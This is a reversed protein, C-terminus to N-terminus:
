EENGLKYKDMWNNLTQYNNLGLLKAAKTRNGGTKELARQIYHGAVMGIIEPLDIESDLSMNLIDQHQGGEVAPLLAEKIDEADLVQGDSWIVARHLTNMFERVNGPWNHQLLINRASPSLRKPELGPEDQNERNIDDLLRDMLLGLDGPRNRLAPLKLVAVALRYFLDARFRGLSVEQLLDRNTAAMVRIDLKVPRSEGVRQIESEQLARLVKVQAALPLEGIEDLFLTGKHAAEFYGTRAQHAGTFAGKIHGFLESELLELPIAGCNVAIFPEDGRPGSKHIARALLEKGTGSEGEILVPVTRMSVKRAKHLIRHMANCRYIIDDFAPELPPLAASLRELRADKQRAAGPLYEASLDFPFKVVRVGHEKSSEILEARFRTKALIIWVAAMAPTGPSLHFTLRAKSYKESLDQLVSLAGQFIEEYSTPGSLSAQRIDIFKDPNRKAIWKHYCSAEEPPYNNLLVLRYFKNQEMAQAVPGIGAEPHGHCANIDTRGLWSILFFSTSSVSHSVSSM